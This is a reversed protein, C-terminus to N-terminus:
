KRYLSSLVFGIAGAILVAKLPKERVKDLLEDAYQKVDTQAADMKELGDQYLADALKKSEHLVDSVSKNAVDAVHARKDHLTEM